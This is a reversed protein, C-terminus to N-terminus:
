IEDSLFFFISPSYQLMVLRRGRLLLRQFIHRFYNRSQRAVCYGEETYIRAAGDWFPSLIDIKVM